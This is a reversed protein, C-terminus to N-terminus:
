VLAWLSVNDASTELWKFSLGTFVLEASMEGLFLLIAILVVVGLALFRDFVVPHILSQTARGSDNACSDSQLAREKVILQEEGCGPIDWAM